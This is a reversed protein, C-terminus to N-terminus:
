KKYVNNHGKSKENVELKQKIKSVAKEFRQEWDGTIEIIDVNYQQLIQRHSIDLLNRESENLRTGDQLYEV